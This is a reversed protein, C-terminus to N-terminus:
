NLGMHMGLDRTPKALQIVTAGVTLYNKETISPLSVVVNCYLVPIIISVYFVVWIEHQTM